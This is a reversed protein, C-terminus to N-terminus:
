KKLLQVLFLIVIGIVMMLVYGGVQGIQLLRIQRSGYQVMRGVGNVMWDIVSKEVVNNLFKAFTNIPRVIIADYIEDVYWKNELIKGFGTPEALDPKKSFRNWAYISAGLALVVSVIMLMWETTATASHSETLKTSEAFVPALFHELWHANSAMVPPIGLFGAVVALIALVILPFTIAAPSEHLHHEQEPTGRFKGLFTTAYLRFMYFATLMAGFVGIM